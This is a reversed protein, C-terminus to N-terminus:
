ARCVGGRPKGLVVSLDAGCLPPRLHDGVGAGAARTSYRKGTRAQHGDQRSRSRGPHVVGRLLAPFPRARRHRHRSISATFLGGDRFAVAGMVPPMLQGGTSATSEIAAAQRPTFGSKKMMPITIVGTALINSVVVGSITGFLSSALVSIKAAGGRYRGMLGLSLDNFFGAGGSAHLLQGFFLFPIVVTVGVLMILGFLGSTDVGLYYLMRGLQVERTELDGPVHHGVLAYAMFFVLIIVLPWGLTRRLGEVTLLFLISATAIGKLPAEFLRLSIDAFDIAVYWGTIFGLAALIADYWPLAGRESGRTAPYNIFVLALGTGFTAALFQEPLFLFGAERYLNAAWALAGLQSPSPSSQGYFSCRRRFRRHV